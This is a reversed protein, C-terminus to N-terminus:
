FVKPNSVGASLSRTTNCHGTSGARKPLRDHDRRGFILKGYRSCDFFGDGNRTIIEHDLSGAQKAEIPCTSIQLLFDLLLHIREDSCFRNEIIALLYTHSLALQRSKANDCGRLPSPRREVAGSIRCAERGTCGGELRKRHAASLIPM